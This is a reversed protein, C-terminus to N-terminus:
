DVSMLQSPFPVALGCADDTEGDLWRDYDEPNLIVPMAKPHLPAVLPNPECILFAGRGSGKPHGGGGLLSPSSHPPHVRASFRAIRGEQNM